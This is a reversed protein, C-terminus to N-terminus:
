PETHNNLVTHPVDGHTILQIPCNYTTLQENSIINSAHYHVVRNVCIISKIYSSIMGLDHSVLVIAMHQNLNKLMDYMESEFEHDVYTGPEDLFLIDPNSVIARGLFVRQKEGGSLMGMSKNKLRSMGLLRLVEEVHHNQKRSFRGRLNDPSALGSRVVDFVSIPFRIDFFNIQPLYGIKQRASQPNDEFLWKVMGSFPKHLGLMVKLLTTKGGGNPGIIGIFDDQSVSFCAKEIVPERHYGASVDNVELLKTM